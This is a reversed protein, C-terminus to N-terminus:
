NTLAGTKRVPRILEIRMCVVHHKPQSAGNFGPDDRNERDYDPCSAGCFIPKIYHYCTTDGFGITKTRISSGTSFCCTIRVRTIFYNTICEKNLLPAYM